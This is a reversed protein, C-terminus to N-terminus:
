VAILSTLNNLRIFFQTEGLFARTICHIEAYKTIYVKAIRKHLNSRTETAVDDTMLNCAGIVINCGSRTLPRWNCSHKNIPNIGSLGLCTQELLGWFSTFLLSAFFIFIIRFCSFCISFSSFMFIMFNAFTINFIHFRFFIFIILFHLFM